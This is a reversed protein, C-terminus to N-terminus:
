YQNLCEPWSKLGLSSYNYQGAELWHQVELEDSRKLFVFCFLRVLIFCLLVVFSFGIAWNENRSGALRGRLFLLVEISIKSVPCGCAAATIAGRRM